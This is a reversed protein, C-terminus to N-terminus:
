PNFINSTSSSFKNIANKKDMYATIQDFKKMDVDKSFEHGTVYADVGSITAFVNEDMFGAVFNIAIINAIILALYLYHFLGIQKLNLKKM